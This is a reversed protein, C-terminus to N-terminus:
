HWGLRGNNSLIFNEVYTKSLRVAEEMALGKACQAAIASSLVCGTGHKDKKNEFVEGVVDISKGDIYLTDTGLKSTRHGGKLLIAINEHMEQLHLQDYEDANPTILDIKQLLDESLSQVTHFEFGASAKLIPDWIIIAEPWTKKLYDLLLVLVEFSQILGIKVAKIPLLIVPELQAIISDFAVWQLSIFEDANQFTHATNVALGYCEHAEFTKVDSLVGAGASPDFGAISLVYPREIQSTIEKVRSVFDDSAQPNAGWVAGLVAAGDFGMEQAKSVTNKTMGGLAIIKSEDEKNLFETVEKCDFGSLYGEKSVSDFVPSLFCYNFESKVLTLEDISHCSSGVKQDYLVDNSLKRKSTSYHLGAFNYKSALDYCAHIIIQSYYRKPIKALFRSYTDDDAEPKRLHFVVKCNSLIDVIVAAEGEFFHPYSLIHIEFM